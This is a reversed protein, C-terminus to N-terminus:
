VYEDGHCIGLKAILNEKNLIMYMFCKNLRLANEDSAEPAHNYEECRCCTAGHLHGNVCFVCNDMERCRNDYSNIETCIEIFRNKDNYVPIQLLSNSSYNITTNNTNVEDTNYTKYITKKSYVEDFVPMYIQSYTHPKLKSIYENLTEGNLNNRILKLLELNTHPIDPIIVLMKSDLSTHRLGVFLCKINACHYQDVTTKKNNTMTPVFVTKGDRYFARKRTYVSNYPHVWKKTCDYTTQFKVFISAKYYNVYSDYSIDDNYSRIYKILPKKEGGDEDDDDDDDDYRENVESEEECFHKIKSNFDETTLYENENRYVNTKYNQVLRPAMDLMEQLKEKDTQNINENDKYKLYNIINIAKIITYTDMIDSETSNRNQRVNYYINLAETNYNTIKQQRNATM